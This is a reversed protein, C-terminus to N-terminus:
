SIPVTASHAARVRRHARPATPTRDWRSVFEPRWGLAVDGCDAEHEDGVLARRTELRREVGFEHGVAPRPRVELETVIGPDHGVAGARDDAIRLYPPLLGTDDPRPAHDIRIVAAAPDPRRQEVPDLRPSGLEQGTGRRRPEVMRDRGTIGGRLRHKAVAAERRDPVEPVHLDIELSRDRAPGSGSPMSIPATSGSSSRLAM